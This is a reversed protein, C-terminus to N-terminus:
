IIQEMIVKENVYLDDFEGKHSSHLAHADFGVIYYLVIPICKCM